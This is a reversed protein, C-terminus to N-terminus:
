FYQVLARELICMLKDRIKTMRSEESEGGFALFNELSNIIRVLELEGLDRILRIYHNEHETSLSKDNALEIIDRMIAEDRIAGGQTDMTMAMSTWKPDGPNHIYENLLVILAQGVLSGMTLTVESGRRATM